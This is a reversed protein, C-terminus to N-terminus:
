AEPTGDTTADHGHESGEMLFITVTADTGSARLLAIGSQGADGVPDLGVVLDDGIQIGGVAGCAIPTDMAADSAYVVLAHGGTVIQDVTAAVTTTSTTVVTASDPGLIAPAEIPLGDADEEAGVGVLSFAAAGLTDCDGTQLLVPKGHGEHADATGALSAAIGLAATLAAFRLWRTAVHFM